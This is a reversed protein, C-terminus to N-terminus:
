PGSKLEAIIDQTPRHPDHAHSLYPARSRRRRQRIHSRVRCKVGIHGAARRARTLRARGGAIRAIGDARQPYGLFFGQAHTYGCAQVFALQEQTEVGEATTPIGLERALAVIRARGGGM